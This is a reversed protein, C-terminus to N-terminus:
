VLWNKTEEILRKKWAMWSSLVKNRYGELLHTNKLLHAMLNAADTWNDVPLIQLNECVVDLWAANKPTKVVLPICGCDLAEYFRFTEPNAGDPCPVFISDLLTEVYEEKPAAAPDNWEKLFVAKKKLDAMNMLPRLLEERGNWGTGQFSWALTRFPTKPTRVLVDQHPERRTWHYGLPLYTVKEPSPTQRTYFRLVKVCSELSYFDLPDQWEEDSMHLVYFKAGFSDWRELMDKVVRVHPRQIVVVPCDSPPPDNPKVKEIPFSSPNGFLEMLWDCEHLQRIDLAHRDMCVFRRPLPKAETSPMKPATMVPPPAATAAVPAAVPAAVVPAVAPLRRADELAQRINLEEGAGNSARAIEEASWRENNNWLDSDFGDVRSFDNFQSNAYKPDDDQYCGAVMPDLVYSKLVNVPNCLVHDASTWYGESQELLQLVKQAGRKSLVYAYACFHFYRTPLSQGWMKNEKIRCFSDNFPEKCNEEFGGRNPPLVGGLYLIDYDDPVDGNKVATKWAAEWGNRFKVDDELILYNNIDPTEHALKWWLGLHSLACGSVAKKWFFDNPKLLRSIAPTLTINRGDIASWREVREKLDPSNTWLRELRDGRRDLNIVYAEDISDSFSRHVTFGGRHIYIARGSTFTKRLSTTCQVTDVPLRRLNHRQSVISLISQDHRHGSPKKDARAASRKTDWKEGALVTRSSALRFSEQFLRVAAPSGARFCITAAQIQQAALESPSVRLEACFEPSCWRENEERPDELLCVGEAQAALMWDKPWRCLFTGSDMYVIMAGALEPSSAVTNLIWLKWGYHQPDWFDAFTNPPPTSDPLRRFEAFAFKDKLAAVTDDPVDSFLFVLAKLNPIASHQTGVSALWHQLSPLFKRNCCSVMLPVEVASAETPPAAPAAVAEPEPEPVACVDGVVTPFSKYSFGGVTFIRKACEAMTRHCWAVRYPDLAPVAFRKLWESDDADVAKVLSILEEKSKVNRADIAGAMSFDREIAPDGWYIPICGAAKAHLFKETTYGRSSSNEYAMCFKYDKLFEHKKLEGGGGGAGAFIGGGMNNMVRGASDVTKYDSLWQFATNRTANSPNSVVFACFNKKRELDAANVRTCRELPIPKPNAIKELNAGFWDIELIWLPFRLYEETVMDFHHFGLNLKVGPGDLPMTNEGTFHIKPQEAPLKTWSDGFPGFIVVDSTPLASEGVIKLPTDLKAAAAQLLLTFFNYQPNFSEWMDSFGVHFEKSSKAVAVAPAPVAAASAPAAAASASPPDPMTHVVGLKELCEKWVSRVAPSSPSFTAVLKERIKDIAGPAFIGKLTVMDNELKQIAVCAEGIHNAAYYSTELGLGVDRMVPSNHVIPIGAWAADLLIPRVTSFRLHSLVCSMPEQVWEVCRQRGIFEGSIDLDSCHKVINEVFFKSKMVQDANHVKWAGIALGRRKAERLIVLPIVASSANTTNTETVHMKWTPLVKAGGNTATTNMGRLESVTTQLWSPMGGEKMHAAAITQTWLYPVRIVPARTLLEIAQQAGEEADLVADFAWIQTLGDFERKMSQVTPFLSTELEQLIFPHRLVWICHKAIRKRKDTTSLMRDIEFLVDYNTATAFPVVKLKGKLSHCDDWWQNNTVNILDVTHGLGLFLEAVAMSTNATGSSFM